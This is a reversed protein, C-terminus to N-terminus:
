ILSKKEWLDLANEMNWQAYPIKVYADSVLFLAVKSCFMLKGPLRSFNVKLKIFYRFLFKKELRVILELTFPAYM